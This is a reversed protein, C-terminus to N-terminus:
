CNKVTKDPCSNQFLVVETKVTGDPSPNQVAATIPGTKATGNLCYRLMVAEIKARKDTFSSQATVDQTRATGEPYHSLMATAATRATMDLYPKSAMKSKTKATGDIRPSAMAAATKIESPNKATIAGRRTSGNPSLVTVRERPKM